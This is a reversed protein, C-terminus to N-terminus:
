VTRPRSMSQPLVVSGIIRPGFLKVLQETGKFTSEDRVIALIVADASLIVPISAENRSPNSCAVIVSRAVVRADELYNTFSSIASKPMQTADLLQVATGLHISGVRVLSRAVHVAWDTPSAPVIALSSWQWRRVAVWLQHWEVRRDDEIEPSVSETVAAEM